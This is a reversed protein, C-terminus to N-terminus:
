QRQYGKNEYATLIWQSSLVNSDDNKNEGSLVVVVIAVLFM